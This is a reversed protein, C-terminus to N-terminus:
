LESIEAPAAEITRTPRLGYMVIRLASRLWKRGTRQTQGPLDGRAEDVRRASVPDCPERCYGFM